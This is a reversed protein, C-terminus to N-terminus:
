QPAPALPLRLEFCAGGGARDFAAISGGHRDAVLRCLYLGLGRNASGQDANVQGYKEFLQSRLEPRIGAGDNSISVVACGDETHLRLGVFSRAFRAANSLLNQVVRVVLGADYDVEVPPGAVDIVLAAGGSQVVARMGEGVVILQPGLRALCPAYPLLGDEARAVDLFDLLMAQLQAAAACSDDIAARVEGGEIQRQAYDLNAKIAALPNKLDHVILQSLRARSMEIARQAEAFRVRAVANALHPALASLLTVDDDTLSRQPRIYLLGDRRADPGLPLTFAGNPLAQVHGGTAAAPVDHDFCLRPLDIPLDGGVADVLLRAVEDLSRAAGVGAAVGSVLRWRRAELHALRRSEEIADNHRKVNLLSRVRALLEGQHIPKTLFDDAGAEKGRVRSQHDGLATVLVVPLLTRAPDARIARCVDIGDLGPMMVDLLVLDFSGDRVLALASTGDKAMTLTHGDKSLIAELLRRNAAEDDAILIRAPLHTTTTTM